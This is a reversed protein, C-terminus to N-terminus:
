RWARDTPFGLREAEGVLGITVVPSAEDCTGSVDPVHIEQDDLFLQQVMHSIAEAAGLVVGAIEVGAIEVGAIEVGAGDSVGRGDDFVGDGVM